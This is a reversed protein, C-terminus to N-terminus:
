RVSLKFYDVTEHLGDSLSTSPLWNFTQLFKTMDYFRREQGDPYSRDWLIDGAFGTIQRLLAALELISTESGTGVNFPGVERINLSLLAAIALDRAHLFERSAKGTGWLTVHSRSHDKAEVFKRVLAPVVHSTYPNFNDFPGYLNAPLLVTSNFDFQEKYAWGQIVLNKKAMSYGYSNMDPLGSWFDNESFPAHCAKPYGCGAALSVLKDIGCRYAAEYINIGMLANQYFFDGPRDRNVGIGGVMGALHIVAQPRHDTLYDTLAEFNLLDLEKSDPALISDTEFESLLKLTNRGVFGHSGTILLKKEGVASSIRKRLTDTLTFPMM